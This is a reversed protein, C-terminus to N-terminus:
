SDHNRICHPAAVVRAIGELIRVVPMGYSAQSPSVNTTQQSNLSNLKAVTIMTDYTIDHLFHIASCHWEITDNLPVLVLNRFCAIYIEIMVTVDNHARPRRLGGADGNNVWVNFWAYMLSFMLAGRWQGRDPSNVPSRHIGRVFPWCRPFLEWKIIDEHYM